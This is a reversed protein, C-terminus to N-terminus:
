YEAADNADFSPLQQYCHQTNVASDEGNGVAGCFYLGLDLLLGVGCVRVIQERHQVM